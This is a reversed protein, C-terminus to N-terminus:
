GNSRTDAVKAVRVMNTDVTTDKSGMTEKAMATRHSSRGSSSTSNLTATHDVTHRSRHSLMRYRTARSILQQIHMTIVQSSAQQYSRVTARSNIDEM